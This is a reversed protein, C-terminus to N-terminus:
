VLSAFHEDPCDDEYHEYCQAGYETRDVRVDIECTDAGHSGALEVQRWASTTITCSTAAAAACVHKEEFLTKVRRM